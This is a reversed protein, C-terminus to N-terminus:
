NLVIRKVISKNNDTDTVKIMYVGREHETLDLLHTKAIPSNSYIIEGILNFVTVSVNESATITLRGSTPNPVISVNTSSLAEKVSVNTLDYTGTGVCGNFATTEVTYVGNQDPTLNQLTAGPILVGDIYWQYSTGNSSILDGNGETITILPAAKVSLTLNVTSDCGGSTSFVETYAGTTTLSQTGLVYTEGQCIEVVITTDGSNGFTLNLTVSSDCGAVTQFVETYQGAQTITQTGFQYPSTCATQSYTTDFPNLVTLELLITSDCGLSNQFTEDYTGPVTLVQTGLTYSSGSCITDEVVFLNPVVTLQLTTISDCGAVNTLTETYTGSTNLTQGNFVYSSGECISEVLSIQDVCPNVSCGSTHSGLNSIDDLPLADWEVSPDFTSPNSSVGVQISAKRVITMNATSVSGGTWSTGPDQGVIGVIDVTDTTNKLLVVADDGNFSLANSGITALALLNNSANNNVIVFTSNAAISGSLTIPPNSTSGGNSYILLSYAGLNVPGSTPNYIEIAKNNSSGELYESIFLESCPSTPIVVPTCTVEITYTGEPTQGNGTYGDVVIYYTGAALGTQTVTNNGYGLCTTSDCSSLIFIDLDLGNLNSIAVTIDSSQTLTITHVKEKALEALSNCSYGDINSEGDATTGNFPTGCSLAIPNGCTGPSATVPTCTAEITYTGEPTQGNGTYGDVVIYYTGASLGTQTVTNNGYGLCTTSDCSSLIFLDLDLGNLNSLAVTVDSTQTLTLTHVKEKALEALSNCSYGDINSEGDATTGNFPTGCSIAIPNGCTGPSATVPTCTAEITYSGEPTQGGGTYGDVVIYYTGATLGNQTFTNNGYDLCTTSDCASLIFLDLDLGNLNSLTVTLDSTQTLIITHVKEKALEAFSNCSYGDINAEGDATTGNYPTGCSIAIPNNCTGVTGGGIPTCAVEVTYAGENVGAAGFGDVVIYYTGAALANANAVNDGRGLCANADCASLIHIDLDATLGSLTASINSAQTLTITHIKEKGAEQQGGACSYTNFTSSGDVTTGTFPTGCTLAIPNGCTGSTGGSTPTCAVEVTYAGENVGAAGFGDVVVYYTGAALANANAVNDGRGLCANADCASLIHIDLDVTGLGSLTASINSAQTLTITHIKEKGAEQQGGACSYTNFTSSGDVTTGTFPTGCTLAIPSACTGTTGGSTPTCTVEVTYAGENVGAAGFGDVVVYYTGAALGNATAANDDRALCGTADCSGLIHIDLDVGNLNSLTATLDSPQTITITHIKEKGAEQQGGPCSYTNFTSNGDVTTGSFPTGCNLVIPNTCDGTQTSPPCTVEISYTGFDSVVDGDVVIFYQTGATANSISASITTGSSFQTKDLCSAGDCASLIAVEMDMGSPRTLTATLTGNGPSTITHIADPGVNTSGGCNYNSIENSLGTTNGSFSTGCTLAIPSSCTGGTGNNPTCTVELTYAGENVGAAGFGDVVIYYTGAALGTAAAANDDRAICATASCSGLIHIDLDVGNLNSLTATLDSPQTITITHIKEKGAEQQGGACSYTNFTSNGDVTTGSFPTGCSLVIPNSCDGTQTSPPCTVQISYAGFDSVVDGDVVIFYQTGATANNISASISTGSSFQTKDLCSAGDCASLIAVEMDIGNPRTLTATLTGNGPSTITHIADPGVNTSGGCNYNSIENSLGTTNGSFSTGCTLAIPSSCTGGVGSNPTCTVELTYAGENVGAAGFGDVVVFYTGAALGTATAVNDDRAICSTAACSGLIHIDLDEGNLNTLTATLDSPQTITITHIKEKGAEQQGGTCSYTNFNSNGDSTTGTYPTGCTLAIPNTCNGTTTIPPCTVELTYTGFDGPEDGDVVIFYQQGAVANSISATVTAGFGATTIDLCGTEDCSSLIGVELDEGSQRTLTATLTGNGPSTISHIVEPGIKDFSSCSYNGLNNPYGTTNGNLPSGCTLPLPNSCIGTTPGSTNPTCTVNVTYTGENVGAAGFGDVVIFYTGAVLSTATAANDDRAICDTADCSGLIHVDLDEGNLNSLTATLDSTQTITITHIKEKGAEQQGGPCSYTSFNSGGDVTTGNFPTGCTLAIPTTCDGSTSASPTCTVNLTYTGENVGAAGFGDVVVFYTGATLGAAAAANDNRAICDTADCSGLIHVDLDVGNLNSLTATLDSTQTITITHIKEKGAEQQGGPCSYTSFNSGGDLTTGNLPSGCTLPIPNSCTGQANVQATFLLLTFITLSKLVFQLQNIM